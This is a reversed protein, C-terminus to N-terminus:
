DYLEDRTWRGIRVPKQARLRKILAGLARARVRDDTAVPEFRAVPKGHSTVVFSRGSRVKRLLESVKRDAEAAPVSETM